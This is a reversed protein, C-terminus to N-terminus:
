DIQPSYLRDELDGELYARFLRLYFAIKKEEPYFMSWHEPEDVEATPRGVKKITATFGERSLDLLLTADGVIVEASWGEGKPREDFSVVGGKLGAAVALESIRAGRNPTAAM